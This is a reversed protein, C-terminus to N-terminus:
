DDVYIDMEQMKAFKVPDFRNDMIWRAINVTTPKPIKVATSATRVATPSIVSAHPKLPEMLRTMLRDLYLSYNQADGDFDANPQDITLLSEGVGTDDPDTGFRTIRKSQISGKLLTPNRQSSTPIGKTTRWSYNFQTLIDNEIEFSEELLENLIDYIEQDFQYVGSFVKELADNTSYGRKYLKNIIHLKLAIVSPAYPFHVEEPDHPKAISRIVARVSFHSKTGAMHRRFFGPKGSLIKNYFWECSSVLKDIACVTKNQKAESSLRNTPLDIGKIMNLVDLTATVMPDVYLTQSIRETNLLSKNPLPLHSSFIIPRYLNIIRIFADREVRKAKVARLNLFIDLYQDFNAVFNNYGRTLNMSMLERAQAPVNINRIRRQYETDIIWLFLSFGGFTLLKNLQDFICPNLLPAVGHPQHFWIIPEVSAELRSVVPTGCVPCIMGINDRDHTSKCHCSPITTFTDTQDFHTYLQEQNPQEPPITNIIVPPFALRDFVLQLNLIEQVIAM